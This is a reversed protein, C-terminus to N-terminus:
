IYIYSAGWSGTKDTKVICSYQIYANTKTVTHSKGNAESILEGNKYWTYSLMDESYGQPLKTTNCTIKIQDSGLAEKQLRVKMTTSTRDEISLSLTANSLNGKFYYQNMLTEGNIIKFTMMNGDCLQNNFLLQIKMIYNGAPLEKTFDLHGNDKNISCDNETAVTENKENKVEVLFRTGEKPYNLVDYFLGMKITGSGILKDIKLDVINNNPIINVTKIGEAIQKSKNNYTRGTIQYTGIPLGTLTVSEGDLTVTKQYKEANDGYKFLSEVYIETSAAIDQGSNYEMDKSGKLVRITLDGTKIGLENCSTILIMISIVFFILNNRKM